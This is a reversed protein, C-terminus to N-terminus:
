PVIGEGVNGSEDQIAARDILWGKDQKRWTLDATGTGSQAPGPGSEFRYRVSIRVEIEDPHKQQIIYSANEFAIRDFQSRVQAFLQLVEQRGRAIEGHPELELVAGGGLEKGFRSAALAIAMPAEDQSKRAMEVIRESARRVRQVPSFRVAAWIGAVLAFALIAAAWAEKSVSRERAQKGCGGRGDLKTQDKM